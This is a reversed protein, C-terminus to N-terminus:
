KIFRFSHFNRDRNKKNILKEWRMEKDKDDIYIGWVYDEGRMYIDVFLLKEPILPAYVDEGKYDLIEVNYKYIQHLRDSHLARAVTMKSAFVQEYLNPLRYLSFDYMDLAIDVDERLDYDLVLGMERLKEMFNLILEFIQPFYSAILYMNAYRIEVPFCLKEDFASHLYGKNFHDRLNEINEALFIHPLPIDAPFLDFYIIKSLDKEYKTKEEIEESTMGMGYRTLIYAPSPIGLRQKVYPYFFMKDLDLYVDVQVDYILDEALAINKKYKDVLIEDSSIKVEVELAPKIYDGIYEYIDEEKEKPVIYDIDVGLLFDEFSYQDEDRKLGFMDIKQLINSPSFTRKLDEGFFKRFLFKFEEEYEQKETKRKRYVSRRGGRVGPREEIVFGANIGEARLNIAIKDLESQIEDYTKEKIYEETSYGFGWGEDEHLNKFYLDSKTAEKIFIREHDPLRNFSKELVGERIREIYRKQKEHNIWVWSTTRFTLIHLRKRGKIKEYNEFGYLFKKENENPKNIYVKNSMINDITFGNNYYYMELASTDFLPFIGEKKLNEREERKKRPSPFNDLLWYM